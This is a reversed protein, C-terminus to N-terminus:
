DVLPQPAREALLQDAKERHERAKQLRGFHTHIKSLYRHALVFGPRMRLSIEFAQIARDYWGRRSLVAGLQFHAEPFDHRLGVAMLAHEIGPEVQNQRPLAVSLGYHADPSDPDIELVRRFAREAEPWRRQRLYLRGLYNQTVPDDPAIKESATFAEACEKMDGRTWALLGRLALTQPRNPELRELAALCAAAEEPVQAAFCTQALVRWYRPEDPYRETLSVLIPKAERARGGEGLSVATNFDAEAEVTAIARATDEGPPAIYGLEVLQRLATQAASPDEDGADPPLRGDAGAIAEWSPVRTITPPEAFANVLVKGEMDEGLPLGLLTLVTPAVDLLSAGEIMQDALIGPGSLVFIGQPRHWQAPEVVQRPRNNGSQFGHDSVIMVYSEPGALELLRGLMLDHFRYIGTMVDKYIEFEHEATELLRPPHFPMFAHGVQDICEYYVAGFDWPEKELLETASSHVTIVEALRQALFNLAQGVAPNSQDLEAARPILQQLMTGEIEQPHVRLEALMEALAPPQVSGSAIPWNGPTADVPPLAFLNSTMAGLIPEAPHSAQWGCVVSPRDSQSFINWLAKCTRTRSGVPRIGSRDPLPEAFGRVGHGDIRKGTAISTWLIPSLMPSLSALNGITGSNILSELTPMLGADVLPHIVQWDAADWGILLLRSKPLSKPNHSM